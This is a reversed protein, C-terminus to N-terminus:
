GLQGELLVPNNTSWNLATDRKAQQSWTVTQSPM